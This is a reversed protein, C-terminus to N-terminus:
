WLVGSPSFDMPTDSYALETVSWFFVTGLLQPLLRNSIVGRMM